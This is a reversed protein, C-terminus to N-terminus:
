HGQMLSISVSLSSVTDSALAQKASPPRQEQCEEKSYKGRIEEESHGGDRGRVELIDM